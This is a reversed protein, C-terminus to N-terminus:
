GGVSYPTTNIYSDAIASVSKLLGKNYVWEERHFIIRQNDPDDVAEVIVTKQGSFGSTETGAASITIENNSETLTINDGEILKKQTIDIAKSAYVKVGGSVAEGNLTLDKMPSEGTWIKKYKLRGESDRVVIEDGPEIDARIDEDLNTPSIPRPEQPDNEAKDWRYIQLEKPNKSNFNISTDDPIASGGDPINNLSLELKKTNAGPATPKLTVSIYPDKSIDVNDHTIQVVGQGKEIGSDDTLGTVLKGIKQYHLKQIEESNEQRVLIEQSIESNAEVAENVDEELTTDLDRSTGQFAALRLKNDKDFEISHLDTDVGGGGGGGVEFEIPDDDEPMDVLARMKQVQLAVKNKGNKDHALGTLVAIERFKADTKHLDLKPDIICSKNDEKIVMKKGFNSRGGVKLDGDAVLKGNTGLYPGFRGEGEVQLNGGHKKGEPDTWPRIRVDGQLLSNADITFDGLKWTPNKELPSAKGYWKLDVIVSGSKLRKTPDKENGDYWRTSFIRITGDPDMVFRGKSDSDKIGKVTEIVFSNKFEDPMPVGGWKDPLFFGHSFMHMFITQPDQPGHNVDGLRGSPTTIEPIEGELISANKKKVETTDRDAAILWGTEGKFVPAHLYFGGHQQNLLTTKVILRERSTGNMLVQNVLPIVFVDGNEDVKEVAAPLCVNLQSFCTQRRVDFVGQLTQYMAAGHNLVQKAM